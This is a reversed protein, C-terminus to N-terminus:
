LYPAPISKMDMWGDSLRSAHDWEILVLDYTILTSPRHKSTLKVM